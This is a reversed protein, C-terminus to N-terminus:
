SEQKKRKNRKGLQGPLLGGRAGGRPQAQRVALPRVAVLRFFRPPFRKAAARLAAGLVAAPVTLHPQTLPPQRGEKGGEKEGEHLLPFVGAM